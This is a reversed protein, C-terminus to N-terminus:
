SIPYIVGCKIWGSYCLQYNNKMADLFQNCIDITYREEIIEDMTDNADINDDECCIEIDTFIEKRHIDDSIWAKVDTILKTLTTIANTTNLYDEDLAIAKKNMSDEPYSERANIVNTLHENLEDLTMRNHKIM